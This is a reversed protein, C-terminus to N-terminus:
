QQATYRRQNSRTRKKFEAPSELRAGSWLGVKAKRAEDELREYDAKRGDYQAGGQRYVVALGRKLLEASIERKGEMGRDYELVGLLRSYRDKALIKIQVTQGLLEGSTFQRAEESLQQGKEPTDVAAFRVMITEATIKGAFESSSSPRPLHRVRVTDGDIVKRVVGKIVKKEKYYNEPIQAATKFLQQPPAQLSHPGGFIAAASIAVASVVGAAFKSFVDSKDTAAPDPVHEKKSSRRSRRSSRRSSRSSLPLTGGPILLLLLFLSIHRFVRM